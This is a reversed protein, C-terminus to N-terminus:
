ERVNNKEMWYELVVFLWIEAWRVAPDGKLFRQWYQRLEVGNICSRQYMRQLRAECFPRLENRMWTNWPFLFGKKKRHIIESPLLDGLSEVLLQKPYTPTKYKDPVKLVFEILEHDFFPERVELSSAMSFQDMDKLLTNQTYGELEAVSFQSLIPLETLSSNFQYSINEKFTVNILKNIQENNLVQRMVPYFTQISLERARLINSLRNFKDTSPLITTLLWRLSVPLKWIWRSANMVQWIRFGNYGAFLEDGGVGSIAVKIGKMAVAKSIVYSNIGDGSPMDMASLANPLEELFIEPKLFISHHNTSFKKAVIEAYESEDYETESFGISFTQPASSIKAMAGVVASSDIGGSLFAAVPVDSVLRREVAQFFLDSICKCIENKNLHAVTCKSTTIDWYQQDLVKTGTVLLYHGAKVQYVNDIISTPSSFSQTYFYQRLALKDIRRPILGSALMSRVESAFVFFNEGKSYYLPKVGLRDRAIFVSRNVKNFIAFAFMGKFMHLCNPGWKIYAALVVETDSKTKFSYENLQKKIDTYNYIEGNFVIIYNGSNDYFPQNASTSLDIISLRRHGLAIADDIYFGEADPGRHAMADTMSRILINKNLNTDYSLLGAIGCM